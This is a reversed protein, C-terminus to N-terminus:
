KWIMKSSSNGRRVIVLQGEGPNAIEQGQLNFYRVPADEADTITEVGVGPNELEVYEKFGDWYPANKYIEATGAPVTLTCNAKIAPQFTTEQISPPTTALCTLKTLAPLTGFCYSTYASKGEITKLGSGLLIETVNALSYFCGAEITEVSNPFELKTLTNIQYFGEWGVATLTEPFKITVPNTRYFCEPYLYNVTYTADNATVEEPIVVNGSYGSIDYGAAKYAAGVTATLDTHNLNYVLGDVNIVDVKTGPDPGPNDPTGSIAEIKSFKYWNNSMMDKYATMASEPVYLTANSYVVDDFTGGYIYPPVTANCTVSTIATAGQFALAPIELGNSISTGFEVSKLAACGYFAWRGIYNVNDGIKISTITSGEFASAEISIVKYTRQTQPVVFEDPIVIDGTATANTTVEATLAANNLTYEVGEYTHAFAPLALLGISLSLLSKKM